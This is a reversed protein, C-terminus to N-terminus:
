RYELMHIWLQTGSLSETRPHYATSFFVNKVTIKPTLLSVLILYVVVCRLNPKLNSLRTCSYVLHLFPRTEHHGIKTFTTRVLRIQNCVLCGCYFGLTKLIEKLWNLCQLYLVLFISIPLQHHPWEATFTMVFHLSVYRM